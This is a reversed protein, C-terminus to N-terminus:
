CFSINLAYYAYGVPSLRFINRVYTDLLNKQIEQWIKKIIITIKAMIIIIMLIIMMNKMTEKTKNEKNKDKRQKIQSTLIAIM